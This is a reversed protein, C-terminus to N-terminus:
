VQKRREVLGSGWLSEIMEIIVKTIALNQEISFDMQDYLIKFKFLSQLQQAMKYLDPEGEPQVTVNEEVEMESHSSLM